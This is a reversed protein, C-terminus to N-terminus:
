AGGKSVNVMLWKSNVTCQGNMILRLGNVVAQKGNEMGKGKTMETRWPSNILSLARHITFPSYGIFLPYRSTFRLHYVAFSPSTNLLTM